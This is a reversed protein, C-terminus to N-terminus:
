RLWAPQMSTTRSRALRAALWTTAGERLAPRRAALLYLEYGAITRSRHDRVKM